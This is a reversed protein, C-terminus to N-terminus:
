RRCHPRLGASPRCRRVALSKRLRGCNGASLFNVDFKLNGTVQVRNPETRITRLRAADDDTQTLFLDVNVLMKLLAWRFRAYRPLSRNSIRANVVVIRAGSTHSLRLLNPWFETEALIVM